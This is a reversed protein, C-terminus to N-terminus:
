QYHRITNQYNKIFEIAEEILYGVCLRCHSQKLSALIFHEYPFKQKCRVCFRYAPLRTSARTKLQQDPKAVTAQPLPKKDMNAVSPVDIKDLEELTELKAEDTLEDSLFLIM